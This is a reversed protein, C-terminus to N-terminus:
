KNEKTDSSLLVLGVVAVLAVPDRVALAALAAAVQTPVAQAATPTETAAGLDAVEPVLTTELTLVSTVEVVAVV